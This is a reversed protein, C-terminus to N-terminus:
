DRFSRHVFILDAHLWNVFYYNNNILLQYLNSNIVKSLDNNKFELRKMKLDLYEVSIVRPKYKTLNFGEFIDLEHGEVDINMYDIDKNFNLDELVKNLTITKITKIEKVSAKQFNSM